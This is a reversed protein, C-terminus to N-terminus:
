RVWLTNLSVHILPEVKVTGQEIKVLNPKEIDFTFEGIQQAASQGRRTSANSNRDVFVATFGALGNGIQFLVFALATLVDGNARVVNIGRGIGDCLATNLEHGARRLDMVIEGLGTDDAM